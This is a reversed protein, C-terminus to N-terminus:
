SEWGWIMIRSETRSIVLSTRHPIITKKNVEIEQSHRIPLAVTQFRSDGKEIINVGTEFAFREGPNIGTDSLTGFRFTNDADFFFRYEYDYGYSKLTEIIKRIIESVPIQLTSFRAFEVVPCAIQVNTLGAKQIIDNLIVRANEKRYSVALVTAWLKEFGDSLHLVTKQKQKSIKFIYGSFLRYTDTNYILTIVVSDHPNGPSINGPYVLEAIVYPLDYDTRLIFRHPKDTVVHNNIIVRIVPRNIKFNM